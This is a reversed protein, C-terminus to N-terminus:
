SFELLVIHLDFIKGNEELVGGLSPRSIDLTLAATVPLEFRTCAAPSYVVQHSDLHLCLM